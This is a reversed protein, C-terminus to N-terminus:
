EPVKVTEVPLGLQDLQPRIKAADGVVVWVIRAPDILARAAKDLDATNLARYRAPLKVYYDDSRHFQTIRAMADLVADGTEFSGPLERAAGQAAIALERPAVGKDGLFARIDARMAAISAGTKDIQVPAYLRLAVPGARESVGSFVGYSWGKEERLDLNM